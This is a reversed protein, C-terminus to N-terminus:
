RDQHNRGSCDKGDNRIEGTPELGRFERKWQAKGLDLLGSGPFFPVSAHKKYIFIIRVLFHGLKTSM